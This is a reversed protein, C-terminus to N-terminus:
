KLSFIISVKLTNVYHVIFVKNDEGIYTIFWKIKVLKYLLGNNCQGVM